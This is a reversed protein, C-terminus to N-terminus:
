LLKKPLPKPRLPHVKEHEKLDQVEQQHGHFQIVMELQLQVITNNFTSQIHVVGNKLNTKEEKITSKRTTQPM